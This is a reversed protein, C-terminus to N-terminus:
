RKTGTRSEMADIRQASKRLLKDQEDFKSFVKEGLQDLTKSFQDLRKNVQVADGRRSKQGQEEVTDLRQTQTALAPLLSEKLVTVEKSLEALGKGQEAISQQITQIDGKVTGIQGATEARLTATMKGQRTSTLDTQHTEESQRIDSKEINGQVLRLQLMVEELRADIEKERKQTQAITAAKDARNKRLETQLAVAQAEM